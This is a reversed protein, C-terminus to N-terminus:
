SRGRCRVRLQQDLEPLAVTLTYGQGRPLRLSERVQVATEPSVETSGTARRTRQGPGDPDVTVRHAVARRTALHSEVVFEVRVSDGRQLCAAQPGSSMPQAFYLEVYSAPQRTLSLDLQHRVAPSVAAALGLVVLGALVLPLARQYWRSPSVAEPTASTDDPSDM